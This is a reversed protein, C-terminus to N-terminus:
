SKSPYRKELEERSLEQVLVPRTLPRPEDWRKDKCKPCRKPAVLRAPYWEHHCRYCHLRPLEFTSTRNPWIRNTNNSM